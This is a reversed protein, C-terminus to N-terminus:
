LVAKLVPVGVIVIIFLFAVGFVMPVYKEIRSLSKKQDNNGYFLSNECTFVYAPLYQELDRIIDYKVTILNRYYELQKVWLRCIVVGILSTIIAIITYQVYNLHSIKNGFLVGSLLVSLAMMFFNNMSMRRTSIAEVYGVAVKWQDALLSISTKDNNLLMNKHSKNFVLKETTDM